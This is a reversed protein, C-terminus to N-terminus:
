IQCRKKLSQFEVIIKKICLHHILEMRLLALDKHSSRDIRIILHRTRIIALRKKQIDIEKNTSRISKYRLSNMITLNLITISNGMSISNSNLITSSNNMSNIQQWAVVTETNVTLLTLRTTRQEKSFLVLLLHL